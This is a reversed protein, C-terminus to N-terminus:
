GDVSFSYLSDYYSKLPRSHTILKQWVMPMMDILKSYMVLKQEFNLDDFCAIFFKSFIHTQVVHIIDFSILLKLLSRAVPM